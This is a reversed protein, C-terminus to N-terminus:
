DQSDVFKSPDTEFSALATMMDLRVMRYESPGRNFVFTFKDCTGNPYFRVVAEPLDKKEVYNVAIMELVIDPHIEASFFKRGPVPLGTSESAEPGSAPAAVPAPMPPLDMPPETGPNMQQGPGSVPAPRILMRYEAPSVVFEWPQGTLISQARAQELLHMVNRTTDRIPNVNFLGGIFPVAMAILMASIGLVVMIELMTFGGSARRPATPINLGNIM